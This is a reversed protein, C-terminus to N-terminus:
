CRIADLRPWQHCSLHEHLPTPAKCPNSLNMAVVCLQSPSVAQMQSACSLTLGRTLVLATTRLTYLCAASAFVCTSLRTPKQTGTCKVCLRQHTRAPSTMSYTCLLKGAALSSNPWCTSQVPSPEPRQLLCDAPVLLTCLFVCSETRCFIGPCGVVSFVLSAAQDHGLFCMAVRAKADTTLLCKFVGYLSAPWWHTLM